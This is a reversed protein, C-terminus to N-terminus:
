KAKLEEVIDDRIRLGLTEMHAWSFLVMFTGGAVAIITYEETAMLTFAMAVAVFALLVVEVTFMRSYKGDSNM